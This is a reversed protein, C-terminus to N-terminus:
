TRTSQWPISGSSRRMRCISSSAVDNFGIDRLGPIDHRATISAGGLNSESYLRVYPASSSESFCDSGLRLSSAQARGVNTLALDVVDNRVSVCRGDFNPHEYLSVVEGTSVRISTASDNFGFLTLNPISDHVELSNGTYSIAGDYLTVQGAANAWGPSLFFAAIALAAVTLITMRRRTLGLSGITPSVLRSNL